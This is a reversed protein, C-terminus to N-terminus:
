LVFNEIVIHNLIIYLHIGFINVSYETELNKQWVSGITELQQMSFTTPQVNSVM